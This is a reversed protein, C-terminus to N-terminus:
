DHAGQAAQRAHLAEFCAHRELLVGGDRRYRDFEQALPEPVNGPFGAHLARLVALRLRAVEPWDILEAADLELLRAGAGVERLAAGIAERPWADAPDAHFVNLFLRSSPAYPSYKAPDAAFMAHVPSIALADCGRPALRRALRTLATYDGLGTLDGAPEPERRLSYLQAALGWPRAHPGTLEAVGPCRAPALAIELEHGGASVGYYGPEGPM